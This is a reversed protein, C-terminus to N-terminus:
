KNDVVDVIIFGNWSALLYSDNETPHSMVLTYNPNREYIDQSIDEFLDRINGWTEISQRDGRKALIAIELWANDNPTFVFFEKEENITIEGYDEFIETLFGHLFETDSNKTATTLRTIVTTEPVETKRVIEFQGCGLVSLALSVILIITCSIKFTRRM